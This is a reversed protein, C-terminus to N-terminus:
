ATLTPIMLILSCVPSFMAKYHSTYLPNPVLAIGGGTFFLTGQKREIM